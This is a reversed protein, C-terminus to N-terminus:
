DRPERLVRETTDRAAVALKAPNIRVLIDARQRADVANSKSVREASATMARVADLDRLRLAVFAADVYAHAATVGDGFELARAAAREFTTRAARNDNAYAYLTAALLLDKVSTQDEIARLSAAQVLLAAAAAQNRTDTLLTTARTHLTEALAADSRVPQAQVPAAVSTAVTTLVVVLVPFKAANSM